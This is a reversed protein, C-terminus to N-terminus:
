MGTAPSDSVADDARHSTSQSNPRILSSLYEDYATIAERMEDMYGYRNYVQAIPSQTGGSVHNLLKETVVQQVGLSALTTSFTRRLDHLTWPAVNELKVDFKPKATSWGNFTTTPKGRVHARYAPFLDEGLEPLDDLLAEVMDGYPFTHSRRNKTIEGPLTITREARDFWEWKLKTIEGRRQGTLLCLRVIPGFPFPEEAAKSMVEVIEETSLVRARPTPSFGTHLPAAPNFDLYGQRAAWNLFVKLAVLAHTAESPSKIRDVRSAIDHRTIEGLKKRGLPFHKLLRTYDKVTGERNKAACTKLYKEKADDFAITPLRRKDLTHEALLRKAETRAESLTLPPFRGITTRQRERGCVVVFTKSGGQSVRVGFSRLNKDWYTVQGKPPPKLARVAIDTLHAQPM